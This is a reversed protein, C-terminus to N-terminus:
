QRYPDAPGTNAGWSAAMSHIEGPSFGLSGLAALDVSPGDTEFFSRLESSLSSRGVGDTGLITLQPVHRSVPSMLASVWDSVFVSSRYKSLIDVVKPTEPNHGLRQLRDYNRVSEVVRKPSPVSVLDAAISVDNLLGRATKAALYGVGSFCLAM